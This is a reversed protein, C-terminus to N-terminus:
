RMWVEPEPPRERWATGAVHVLVVKALLLHGPSDLDPEDRLQLRRQLDGGSGDCDGRVEGSQAEGGDDVIEDLGTFWIERERLM